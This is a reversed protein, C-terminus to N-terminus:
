IHNYYNRSNKFVSLLAKSKTPKRTQDKHFLEFKNTRPPQPVSNVVHTINVMRSTIVITENGRDAATTVNLINVAQIEITTSRSTILEM